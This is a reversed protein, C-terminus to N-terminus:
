VVDMIEDVIELGKLKDLQLWEECIELQALYGLIREMSFNEWEILEEIYNFRWMSIAQYLDLPASKRAEYLAKLGAYQAPPEFVKERALAIIEAVFPDELDEYQLEKELDRQLDHARLAVFVLRWQWQFTIYQALFWNSKDVHKKAWAFYKHLVLPFNEIQEHADTYTELYDVIYEPLSEKYFLLEELEHQEYNGGPKLPQKQWLARINDIDILLKFDHVLKYDKETLNQQLLFDLEYSTIDVPSGVKLPPLLTALFYYNAM